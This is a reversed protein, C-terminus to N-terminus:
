VPSAVTQMRRIMLDDRDALPGAACHQCPRKAGEARREAAWVGCAVCAASVKLFPAVDARPCRLASTRLVEHVLRLMGIIMRGILSDFACPRRGARFSRRKPVRSGTASCSCVRARSPVPIDRRACVQAKTMSRSKLRPESTPMAPSEVAATRVAHCCAREIDDV